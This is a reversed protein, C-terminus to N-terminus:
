SGFLLYLCLCELVGPGLSHILILLEKRNEKCNGEAISTNEKQEEREGQMLQTM